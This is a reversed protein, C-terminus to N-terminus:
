AAAKALHPFGGDFRAQQEDVKQALLQSQGARRREHAGLSVHRLADVVDLTVESISAPTSIM